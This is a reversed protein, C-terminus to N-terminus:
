GHSGDERGVGAAAAAPPAAPSGGRGGTERAARRWAASREAEAEDALGAAWARAAAEVVEAWVAEASAVAAGGGEGAQAPAADGVAVEAVARPLADARM